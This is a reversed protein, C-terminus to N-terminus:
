RHQPWIHARGGGLPQCRLLRRRGGDRAQHHRVHVDRAGLPVQDLQGCPGPLRAPRLHQRRRPRDGRGRQLRLGALRDAKLHHPHDRGVHQLWHRLARRLGLLAAGRVRRRGRLQRARPGRGAGRACHTHHHHHPPRAAYQHRHRPGRDLQDARASDEQRPGSCCTQAVSAQGGLRTVRCSAGPRRRSRAPKTCPGNFRLPRFRGLARSAADFEKACPLPLYIPLPAPRPAAAAAAVPLPPPLPAARHAPELRPRESRIRM